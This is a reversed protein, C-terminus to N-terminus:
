VALTTGGAPTPTLTEGCVILRGGPAEADKSTVNLM